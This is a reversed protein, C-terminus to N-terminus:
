QSRPNSDYIEGSPIFVEKYYKIYDEQLKKNPLWKVFPIMWKNTHKIDRLIDNVEDVVKRGKPTKVCSTFGYYIGANEKIPFVVAQKELGLEKEYYTVRFSYEFTYEARDKFIFAFMSKGINLTSLSTIHNQEPNDKLYSQLIKNAGLYPRNKSIVLRLNKNQIIDELVVTEGEKGFLHAKDKSTVLYHAKFPFQAMSLYDDIDLTPHSILDNTCYITESDNREKYIAIARNVNMVVAEHHYQPLRDQLLKLRIDQYGKNKQDGKLIFNPPLDWLMWTITDKSFLTTVLLFVFLIKKM